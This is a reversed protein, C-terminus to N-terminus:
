YWYCQVNPISPYQNEAPYRIRIVSVQFGAPDPNLRIPNKNYSYYQLGIFSIVNCCIVDMEELRFTLCPLIIRGDTHFATVYDSTRCDVTQPSGGLVTAAQEIEKMWTHCPFQPLIFLALLLMHLTTDNKDGSHRSQTDGSGKM